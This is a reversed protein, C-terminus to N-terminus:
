MLISHSVTAATDSDGIRQPVAADLTVAFQPFTRVSADVCSFAICLQTTIAVVPRVQLQVSVGAEGMSMADIEFISREEIEALM